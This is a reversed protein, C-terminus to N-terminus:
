LGGAARRGLAQRRLSDARRDEIGRITRDWRRCFLCVTGPLHCMYAPDAIPCHATIQKGLNGIEAAEGAGRVVPANGKSPDPRLM